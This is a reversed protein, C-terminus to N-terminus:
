LPLETDTAGKVPLVRTLYMELVFRLVSCAGIVGRSVCDFSTGTPLVYTFPYYTQTYTPLIELM